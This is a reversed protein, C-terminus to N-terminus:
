SGLWGRRWFLVFLLIRAVVESGVGYIVLEQWAETHGALAGFNQGFFGALFTLRLLLAGRVPRGRRAARAKM